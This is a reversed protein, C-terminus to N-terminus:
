HWTALFSFAISENEKLTIERSQLVCKADKQFSYYVVMSFM